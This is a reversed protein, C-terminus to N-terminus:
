NKILSINNLRNDSSRILYIGKMLSKGNLQIKNSGKQISINKVIVLQGALSFLQISSLSETSSEFSLTILDNFPNPYVKATNEVGEFSLKLINSYSFKQYKDVMKLRYYTVPSFPKADIYNYLQNKDANVQAPINGLLTFDKGNSSRELDFHDTSGENAIQWSLNSRNNQMYGSFYILKVPLPSTVTSGLTLRYPKGSIFMTPINSKMVWDNIIDHADDGNLLWSQGIDESHWQTLENKKGTFTPTVVEADFYNFTATINDGSPNLATNIDFYRYVGAMGSGGNTQLKHSRRITVTGLDKTTSLQLGINGCNSSLVNSSSLGVQKFIMGGNNFSFDFSTIRRTNTEGVIQGNGNTATSTSSALTINYTNLDILGDSIFTLNGNVNINCTLQLKNTSVGNNLDVSLNRFTPTNGGIFAPGLSALYVTSANQCKFVNNNTIATSNSISPNNLVFYAGGTIILNNNNTVILNQASLLVPLFLYLIFIWYIKCKSVIM